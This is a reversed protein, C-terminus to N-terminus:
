QSPLKEPAINFKPLTNNQFSWIKRYSALSWGENAMIEDQSPPATMGIFISSILFFCTGHTLPGTNSQNTPLTQQPSHYKGIRDGVKSSTQLFLDQLWKWQHCISSKQRVMRVLPFRFCWWRVMCTLLLFSVRGLVLMAGLFHSNWYPICRGVM